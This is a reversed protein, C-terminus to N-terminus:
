PRHLAVPMHMNYFFSTFFRVQAYHLNDLAYQLGRLGDPDLRLVAPPKPLTPPHTPPCSPQNYQRRPLPQPQPAAWTPPCRGRLSRRLVCLLQPLASALLFLAGVPTWCAARSPGFAVFLFVLSSIVFVYM